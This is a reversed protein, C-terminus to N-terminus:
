EGDTNVTIKEGGILVYNTGINSFIATYVRYWRSEFRIMYITPIKSGYGTTTYSLGAKHHALPKEKHIVAVTQFPGSGQGFQLYFTM